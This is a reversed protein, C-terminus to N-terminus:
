VPQLWQLYLYSRHETLTAAMSPGTISSVVCGAHMLPACPRRKGHITDFFVPESHVTTTLEGLALPLILHRQAAVVLIASKRLGVLSNSPPSKDSHKGLGKEESAEGSNSLCDAKSDFRRTAISGTWVGIPQHELYLM